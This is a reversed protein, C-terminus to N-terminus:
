VRVLAVEAEVYGFRALVADAEAVSMGRDVNFMENKTQAEIKLTAL